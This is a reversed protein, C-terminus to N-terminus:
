VSGTGDIWDGNVVFAPRKKSQAITYEKSANTFFPFSMLLGASHPEKEYIDELRPIKDTLILCQYRRFSTQLYHSTSAVQQLPYYRNMLYENEMYQLCPAGNDPSRQNNRYWYTGEIHRTHFVLWKDSFRLNVRAAAYPPTTSSLKKTKV